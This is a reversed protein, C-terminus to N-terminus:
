SFPLKGAYEEEVWAMIEEYSYSLFAFIFGLSLLDIKKRSFIIWWALNEFSILVQLVPWWQSLVPDEEGGEQLCTMFIFLSFEHFYDSCLISFYCYLEIAVLRMLGPSCETFATTLREGISTGATCRKNYTIYKLRKDYIM